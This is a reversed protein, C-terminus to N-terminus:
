LLYERTLETITYHANVGYHENRFNAIDRIRARATRKCKNKVAVRLRTFLEYEIERDNKM